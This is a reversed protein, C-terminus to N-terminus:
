VHARGIEKGSPSRETYSGNFSDVVTTAVHKLSGNEEFCDDLDIACVQDGVLFGIGDYSSIAALATSYNQFTTPDDTKARRGTVPDYPVKTKRGDRQEYRWCCFRNLSKLKYPLNDYPTM